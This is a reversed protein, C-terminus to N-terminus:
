LIFIINLINGYLYLQTNTVFNIEKIQRNLNYKIIIRLYPLDYILIYGNLIKPYVNELSRMIIVIIYYTNLTMGSNNFVGFIFHGSRLIGSHLIM